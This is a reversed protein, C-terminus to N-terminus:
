QWTWAAETGLMREVVKVIKKMHHNLEERIHTVLVALQERGSREVERHGLQHPEPEWGHRGSRAFGRSGM